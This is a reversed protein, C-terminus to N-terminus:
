MCIPPVVFSDNILLMCNKSTIITIVIEIKLVNPVLWFEVLIIRPIEIDTINRTEKRKTPNSNIHHQYLLFDLFVKSWCDDEPGTYSVTEEGWALTM